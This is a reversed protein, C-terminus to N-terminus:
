REERAVQLYIQEKTLLLIVMPSLYDRFVIDEDSVGTKKIFEKNRETELEGAIRNYTKSYIDVEDLTM